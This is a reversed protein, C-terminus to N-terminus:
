GRGGPQPDGPLCFERAAPRAPPLCRPRVGRGSRAGVPDAQGPRCSRQRARRAAGLPDTGPGLRRGPVPGARERGQALPLQWLTWPDCATPRDTRGRAALRQRARGRSPDRFVRAPRRAAAGRRGAREGDLLHAAEGRGPDRDRCAHRRSGSACAPRCRWWWAGSRPSLAESAIVQGTAEIPAPPADEAPAVAGDTRLVLIDSTPKSQCILCKGAAREEDTIAFSMVWGHDVSGELVESKCTGCAGGRCNHPLGIGAILGADLIAMGPDCVFSQGTNAITVRCADPGPPEQMSSGAALRLSGAILEEVSRDAKLYPQRAAPVLNCLPKSSAVNAEPRARHATPQNVKGQGKSRRTTSPLAPSPRSRKHSTTIKQGSTKMQLDAPPQQLDGHGHGERQEREAQGVIKPLACPGSRSRGCKRVRGVPVIRSKGQRGAVGLIDLGHTDQDDLVVGVGASYRALPRRSLPWAASTTRSPRSPSSCAAVPPHSTSITSRM